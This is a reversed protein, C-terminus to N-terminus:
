VRSKPSRAWPEPGAVTSRSASFAAVPGASRSAPVKEALSVVPKVLEPRASKEPRPAPAASVAGTTLREVSVAPWYLSVMVRVGVPEM